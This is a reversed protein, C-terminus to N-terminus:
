PVTAAGPKVILGPAGQMLADVDVAENVSADSDSFRVSSL